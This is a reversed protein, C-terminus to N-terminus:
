LPHRHQFPPPFDRRVPNTKLSSGPALHISKGDGDPSDEFKNVIEYGDEREQPEEKVDTLPRKPPGFGDMSERM